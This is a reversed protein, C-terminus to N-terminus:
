KGGRVLRVYYITPSKNVPVISGDYFDVGWAGGTYAHPSSSMVYGATTNPFVATNIAPNFCAREVISSLENKNPVRWDSYGAFSYVDANQLASMWTYTQVTGGSCDNGTKGVLCRIWMLGTANHTVTGDGNIIFAQDPTTRPIANNCEALAQYTSFGFMLIGFGLSAHFIRVPKLIRTLLLCSAQLSNVNTIMDTSLNSPNMFQITTQYRNTTRANM